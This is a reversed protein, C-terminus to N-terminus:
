CWDSVAVFEWVAAISRTIRLAAAACLEAEDRKLKKPQVIRKLKYILMDFLRAFSAKYYNLKQLIKSRIAKLLKIAGAFLLLM